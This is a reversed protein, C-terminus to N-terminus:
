FSLRIGLSIDTDKKEDGKIDLVKNLNSDIEYAGFVSINETLSYNLDLNLTWHRYDSDKLYQKYKLDETFTLRDSLAWIFKQILFLVGTGYDSVTEDPGILEKKVLEDNMYSEEAYGYLLGAKLKYAPSNLFTHYLGAAAFYRDDIHDRNYSYWQGAVLVDTREWLEIALFEDLSYKEKKSRSPGYDKDKLKYTTLSTFLGKRLTLNATVKHQIEDDSGSETEKEFSYDADLHCLWEQPMPDIAKARGTWWKGLAKGNSIWSGSSVPRTESTDAQAMLLAQESEQEGSASSVAGLVAMLGIIFVCTAKKLM